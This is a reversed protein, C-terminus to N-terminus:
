PQPEVSRYRSHRTGPLRHSTAAGVGNCRTRGCRSNRCRVGPARWRASCPGRAGALRMAESVAGFVPSVDLVRVQAAPAVNNVGATIRELVFPDGTQLTGGGLVVDADSRTLKLRKLLATAMIAVEDAFETLIRR